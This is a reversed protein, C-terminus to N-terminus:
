PSGAWTGDDVSLAQLRWGNGVYALGIRAGFSRGALTLSGALHASSGSVSRHNWSASRFDGLHHAHSFAAFAQRPVARQFDPSAKQWAEDPGKTAITAFVGTAANSTPGTVKILVIAILAIFLLISGFVAVILQPSASTTIRTEGTAM